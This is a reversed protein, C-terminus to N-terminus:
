LDSIAAVPLILNTFEVLTAAPQEEPFLTLDIKFFANDTPSQNNAYWAKLGKAIDCVFSTGTNQETCGETPIQYGGPIDLTLSRTQMVPIEVAPVAQDPDATVPYVYVISLKIDQQNSSSKQLIIEFLNALHEAAALRMGEENKLRSIDIEAGNNLSPSYPEVFSILPSHYILSPVTNSSTVLHENRIIASAARVSQTQLLGLGKITVTHQAIGNGEYFSLYEKKGSLITTYWSAGPIHAGHVDTANERTYGELDVLPTNPLTIPSLDGAPYFTHDPASLEANAIITVLLRPIGGHDSHYGTVFKPDPGQTIIFDCISSAAQTQIPKKDVPSYKAWSDALKHSLQVLTEMAFYAKDVNPDTVPTAPAIAELADFLDTIIADKVSVFQALDDFLKQTAITGGSSPPLPGTPNFEVRSFVQDQAAQDISYAYSYDWSLASELKELDTKLNGTAMTGSQSSMTPLTPYNRLGTPVQIKENQHGIVVPVSSNATKNHVTLFFSLNYLGTETDCQQSITSGSIEGGNITAVSISPPVPKQPTSSAEISLSLEAQVLTDIFYTSGLKVLLQQKYKDKARQLKNIAVPPSNLIPVVLASITNALSSRTTSMAEFFSSATISQASLFSQEEQVKLQDILGIAKSLKPDFFIDVANLCDEAWTDLDISQFHLLRPSSCDLGKGTTYSCVPVDGKTQLSTSIPNVTFFSASTISNVKPLASPKNNTALLPMNPNFQDLHKPEDKCVLHTLLSYDLLDFHFCLM